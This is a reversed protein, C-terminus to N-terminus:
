NGGWFTSGITISFIWARMNDNVTIDGVKIVGFSPSFTPSYVEVNHMVAHVTACGLFRADTTLYFGWPLKFDLGAQGICGIPRSLTLQPANVRPDTLVPATINMSYTYMWYTGIGVYPRVFSHLFPRYVITFNPPLAHLMGIDQGIAPVQTPIEDGAQNRLATRAVPESALEGRAQFKLRLPAALLAEVSFHEGFAPIIFGIMGAAFHEHSSVGGGSNPIPGPPLGLSVNGNSAPGSVVANDSSGAYVFEGAGLRWYTHQEWWKLSHKWIPVGRQTGEDQAHAAGVTLFGLSLLTVAVVRLGKMMVTTGKESATM